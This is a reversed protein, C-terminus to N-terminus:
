EKETKKAKNNRRQGGHLVTRGFPRQDQTQKTHRHPHATPTRHTDAARRAQTNTRRVTTTPPAENVSRQVAAPLPVSSFAGCVVLPSLCARTHSSRPWRHRTRNNSTTPTGDHTALATAAVACRGSNWLTVEADCREEENVDSWCRGRSPPPLSALIELLRLMELLRMWM